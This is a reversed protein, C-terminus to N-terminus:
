FRAGDVIDELEDTFNYQGPYHSTLFVGVSEDIPDFWFATNAAGGWFFYDVEKAAESQNKIGLGGGFTMLRAAEGFNRRFASLELGPVLNTKQQDVYAKGLIQQEDMRGHSAIMSLYKLYDAASSWLGGGGSYFKYNTLLKEREAITIRWSIGDDEINGLPRQGPSPPGYIRAIEAGPPLNQHLFGSHQMDLRTFIRERLVQGLPKQEIKELLAGLVDTSVSYNFTTGPQAILPMEALLEINTAMTNEPSMVGLEDYQTAVDGLGIIREGYTFGSTHTLLDRITIPRALEEFSSEFSGGPAVLLDDFIPFYENLEDDLTLRGEEIMQFIVTSVVPKTMSALWYVTNESAPISSDVAINGRVASFFIRGKKALLVVYNPIRGSEYIPNLKATIAQLAQANYGAQLPTITPMDSLAPSTIFFLGVLSRRLMSQISMNEEEILNIRDNLRGATVYVRPKPTDVQVKTLKM